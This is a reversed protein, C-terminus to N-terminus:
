WLTTLDFYKTFWLSNFTFDTNVSSHALSIGNGCEIVRHYRFKNDMSRCSVSSDLLQGLCKILILHNTKVCVYFEQCSNEGMWHELTALEVRREYSLM